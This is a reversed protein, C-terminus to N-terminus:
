LHGDVDVLQEAVAVRGCGPRQAVRVPAVQGGVGAGLQVGEGGPEAQAAGPELVVGGAPVVVDGAAFASLGDAEACGLDAPAVHGCDGQSLLCLFSASMLPRRRMVSPTSKWATRVPERDKEWM